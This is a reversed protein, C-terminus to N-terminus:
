NNGNHYEKEGSKDLRMEAQKMRAWATEFGQESKIHAATADSIAPAAAVATIEHPCPMDALIFGCVLPKRVKGNRGQWRNACAHGAARCAELRALQTPTM